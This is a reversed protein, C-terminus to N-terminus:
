IRSDVRIIHYYGYISLALCALQIAHSISQNTDARYGIFIYQIVICKLGICLVKEFAMHSTSYTMYLYRLHKEATM